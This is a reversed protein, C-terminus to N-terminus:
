FGPGIRHDDMFAKGQLAKKALSRYAEKMADRNVDGDELEGSKM